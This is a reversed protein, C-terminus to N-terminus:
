PLRRAPAQATARAYFYQKKLHYELYICQNMVGDRNKAVIYETESVTKPADPKNYYDERYLFGIMDADEELRGSGRLDAMGPRKNDRSRDETGRNLQYLFMTHCDFQKAMMKGSWAVDHLGNVENPNTHKVLGLHDIVVFSPRLEAVTQWIQTMDLPVDDIVRLRDGIADAYEESTQKLQEAQADNFSRSKYVKPDIELLGCIRRIWLQRRKMELSFYLAKEGQRAQHEAFQFAISTKGMSPRAALISMTGTDWGGLAADLTSIGTPLTHTEESMGAVFELHNDGADPYHRSVTPIAQAMEGVLGRVRDLDREILLAALKNNDEAIKRLYVDSMITQAFAGPPNSGALFLDENVTNFKWFLGCDLATQTGDGGTLLKRWYERLQEDLMVDPSLYGAQERAGDADMCALACFTLEAQRQHAILKEVLEPTPNKPM